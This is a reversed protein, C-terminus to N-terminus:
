FVNRTLQVDEEGQSIQLEDRPNLLLLFALM